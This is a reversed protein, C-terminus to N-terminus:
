ENNYINLFDEENSIYTPAYTPGTYSSLSALISRDIEEAIQTDLISTLEREADINHFARIESLTTYSWTAKLHKNIGIISYDYSEFKYKQKM